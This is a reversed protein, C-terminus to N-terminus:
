VMRNEADYVYSGNSTMNGAADYGFGILKSQEGRRRM